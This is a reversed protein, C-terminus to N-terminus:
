ESQNWGDSLEEKNIEPQLTRKIVSRYKMEPVKRIEEKDIQCLQACMKRLTVKTEELPKYKDCWGNWITEFDYSENNTIYEALNNMASYMTKRM